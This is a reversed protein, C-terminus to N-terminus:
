QVFLQASGIVLTLVPQELGIKKWQPCIFRDVAPVAAGGACEAPICLASNRKRGPQQFYTGRRERSIGTVATESESFVSSSSEEEPLHNLREAQTRKKKREHDPVLNTDPTPDEAKHDQEQEAENFLSLQDKGLVYM